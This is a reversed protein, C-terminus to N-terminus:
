GKVGGPILGGIIFREFAAFHAIMPLATITAAALAIGHHTGFIGSALTRM